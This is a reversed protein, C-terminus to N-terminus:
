SRASSGGGEGEAKPPRTVHHPPGNPNDKPITWVHGCPDCRYYNVSSDASSAPLFRPAAHQCDPCSHTPM